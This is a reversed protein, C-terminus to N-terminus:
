NVTLGFQPYWWFGFAAIWQWDLNDTDDFDSHLLIQKKIHECPIMCLQNRNASIVWYHSKFILMSWKFTRALKSQHQVIPQLGTFVSMPNNMAKILLVTGFDSMSEDVPRRASMSDQFRSGKTLRSRHKKRSISRAAERMDIELEFLNRIIFRKKRVSCEAFCSWDERDKDTATGIAQRVRMAPYM